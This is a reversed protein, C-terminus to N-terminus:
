DAYRIAVLYLGGPPATPGAAKRDRAALVDGVASIPWRGLGIQCLTGTIIRVQNHLFSRASVELWVEDGHRTIALHTLTKLPTSAQCESARFSSFDHYGVLAQGAEHMADSDLVRSVWWVRGKELTPPARRSLIRYLYSRSTASFRAHFDVPVEEASIVAVPAPRLQANIAERLKDAAIVRNLDIHIVQGLAHVGTDTRGGGTVSVEEGSFQRIAEELAAQVSPGNQQKQWGVFPGGDYEIVLKFRTM